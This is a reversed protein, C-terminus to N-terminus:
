RAAAACRWNAADALAGSGSYRAQQPYPCLPLSRPTPSDPKTSALIADPATGREVWAEIASLTDFQDPGVGGSCHQMGPVLFLRVNAAAKAPGHLTAALDDYFLATRAAPIAPDSTGHYLIMKRGQHIFALLRAPDKTEAAGFSRDVTALLTDGVTGTAPDVDLAAMPLVSGMWHSVAERALTWGLPAAKPDDGWPAEPHSPDPPTEGTNWASMGHPGSLNTIAWGPYLFRGHRDRLPTTIAQLVGAQEPKLCDGAQGERCLLDRPRVPCRAPDQVLGDTAGDIADCRATVAEDVAALADPPLYAGPSALAAKQVMLRLLTSRYDMAPDGAIVGDYDAPYREAEMMGMRGGTSCGDFYARRLPAAYYAQVFLKGAVTAAHAARYFFDTTKAPDIAGGPARVWDAGSGDGAHGSDQVITAYGKGLASARDVGNVSPTLMGANGGAGMFFFRQRWADPLRLAFRASGPPAGDGRTRVTGLAMCHAPLKDTTAVAVAQTVEVGPVHLARLADANCDPRALAIAASAILLLGALPAVAKM